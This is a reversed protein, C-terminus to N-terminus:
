SPVLRWGGWFDPLPVLTDGEDASGFRAQLKEMREQLETEGVVTSQKSAWAGLRSGVPRSNFYDASEERTVREVVGVARVSRHVEKWYFVVAANPNETMEKSKRSTYNTYFVFGRADVQKLLVVRASPIGSKTATCLTMAEPETIATDHRVHEFWKKFQDLPDPSVSSPSLETDTEYQSRTTVQVKGPLADSVVETSMKRLHAILYHRHLHSARLLPVSIVISSSTVRLCTM